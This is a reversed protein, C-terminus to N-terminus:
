EATAIQASFRRTIGDSAPAHRDGAPKQVASEQASDRLIPTPSMEGRHVGEGGPESWPRGRNNM